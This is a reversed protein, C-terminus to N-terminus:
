ADTWHWSITLSFPRKKDFSSCFEVDINLEGREYLLIGRKLQDKLMEPLQSDLRDTPLSWNDALSRLKATVEEDTM